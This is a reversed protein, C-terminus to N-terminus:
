ADRMVVYPKSSGARNLLEFEVGYLRHLLTENIVENLEGYAISRGNKLALLQDACQLAMNIDHLVIVIAVGEAAYQRLVRLVDLQHGPDLSNLPEDLLLVRPQKNEQNTIQLLVRALQVRQKEGGSLSTYERQLLHSIDLKGAIDVVLKKDFDSGTNHPLRGLEIVEEVLFPFNLTSQQLLVALQQARQLQSYGQLAQGALDLLECQVQLAPNVVGSLAQLLSSKGAGNAGVVALIQGAAMSFSVDDVLVRDKAAVGLSKMSLVAEVM